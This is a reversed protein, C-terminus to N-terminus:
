FGVLYSTCELERKVLLDYANSVFIKLQPYKGGFDIRDGKDSNKMINNIEM